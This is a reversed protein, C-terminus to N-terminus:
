ILAVEVKEETEKGALEGQKIVRRETVAPARLSKEVPIRDEV